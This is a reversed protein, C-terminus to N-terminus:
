STKVPSMQSVHLLVIFCQGTRCGRETTTSSSVLWLLAMNQKWFQTRCKGLSNSNIMPSMKDDSGALRDVVFFVDGGLPTRQNGVFWCSAEMGRMTFAMLPPVTPLAPSLPAALLCYVPIRWVSVLSFVPGKAQKGWSYSPSNNNWYVQNRQVATKLSAHAVSGSLLLRGKGAMSAWDRLKAWAESSVATFCIKTNM